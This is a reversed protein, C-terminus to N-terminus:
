YKKLKQLYVNRAMKIYDLHKQEVDKKVVAPVGAILVNGKEAKMKNVVAGAAVVSNEKIESELVSSNISILCSNGITSDDIVAGHGVTCGEGIEVNRLQAHIVTCDQINTNDGITIKHGSDARLVANYLVSVNEGLQVDGIIKAGDAIFNNTM